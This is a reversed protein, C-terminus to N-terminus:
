YSAGTDALYMGKVGLNETPIHATHTGTTEGTAEGLDSLKPKRAERAKRYATVFEVAEDKTSNPCDLM